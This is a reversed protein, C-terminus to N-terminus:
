AYSNSREWRKFLSLVHVKTLEDLLGDTEIDFVTTM